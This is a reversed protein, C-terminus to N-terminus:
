NAGIWGKALSVAAMADAGFADAGAYACVQQDVTGGGVMIKVQDRLGAAQIAAVTERMSDFALTLFGSLAVVQPKVAAIQEVFTQAPVDIGLDHVEFGNVDLMFVVIDKGIDHIDGKVTGIVVKGLKKAEAQGGTLYPKVEASVGKLMEGALILEPIFYEGAEFRKGVIEMAARCDDLISTPTAGGALLEKTLALAGEEDMDAIANILQESM